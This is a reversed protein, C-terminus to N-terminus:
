RACEVLSACHMSVLVDLDVNKTKITVFAASYRALSSNDTGKSDFHFFRLVYSRLRSAPRDNYICFDTKVMVLVVLCTLRTLLWPAGLRKLWIM